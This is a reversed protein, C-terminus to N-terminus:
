ASELSNRKSYTAAKVERHPWMPQDWCQVCRIGHKGMRALVFLHEQAHKACPRSTTCPHALQACVTAPVSLCVMEQGVCWFTADIYIYIMIYIM